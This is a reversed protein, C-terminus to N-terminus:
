KRHTEKNKAEESKVCYVTIYMIVQGRSPYLFGKINVKFLKSCMKARYEQM